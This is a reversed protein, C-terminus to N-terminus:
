KESAIFEACEIIYQAHSLAVEKRDEATVTNGDYKKVLNAAMSIIRKMSSCNALKEVSVKAGKRIKKALTNELSETILYIERSNDVYIALQTAELTRM